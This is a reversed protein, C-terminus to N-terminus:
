SSVTEGYLAQEAAHQLPDDVLGFTLKSFLSRVKEASVEAEAEPSVEMFAADIVQPLTGTFTHHENQQDLLAIQAQGEAIKTLSFGTSESFAWFLKSEYSLQSM